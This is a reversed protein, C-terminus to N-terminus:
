ILNIRQRRFLQWGLFAIIALYIPVTVALASLAHQRRGAECISITDAGCDGMPVVFLLAVLWYCVTVVVLATIRAIM